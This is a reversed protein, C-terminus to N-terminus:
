AAARVADSLAINMRFALAAEELAPAADGLARGTEALASRYAPELSATDVPFAYFSLADSELGLSRAVMRGVVQGGNLDGLYRVYAHAALRAPDAAIAAIRAAYTEGAPLTPAATRWSPGCLAALDRELAATRYVAPIALSGYPPRDRLADLGREMAEYAPQLNRLWLVYGARTARGKLLDNVFGSKEAETHLAHTADRLAALFADRIPSDTSGPM